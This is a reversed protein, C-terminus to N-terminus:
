SSFGHNRTSKGAPRKVISPYVMNPSIFWVIQWRNQLECLTCPKSGDGYIGYVHITLIITSLIYIYICIYIYCGGFYILVFSTNFIM